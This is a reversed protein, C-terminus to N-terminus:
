RSQLCSLISISELCQCLRFIVDHVQSRQFRIEVFKSFHGGSILTNVDYSGDDMKKTHIKDDKSNLSVLQLLNAKCYGFRMLKLIVRTQSKWWGIFNFTRGM